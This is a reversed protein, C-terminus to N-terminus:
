PQSPSDGVGAQRRRGYFEQARHYRAPCDCSRTLMALARRLSADSHGWIPGVRRESFVCQVFICAQARGRDNEAQTFQVMAPAKWRRRRRRNNLRIM